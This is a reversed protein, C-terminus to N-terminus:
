PLFLFALGKTKSFAAWLFTTSMTTTPALGYDRLVNTITVGLVTAGTHQSAASGSPLFSMANLAWHKTDWSREGAKRWAGGRGRLLVMALMATLVAWAALRVGALSTAARTTEMSWTALVEEVLM